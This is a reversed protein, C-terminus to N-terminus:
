KKLIGFRSFPTIRFVAKGEIKEEKILGIRIDRSDSSEKRNDGMVFYYGEPIVLYGYLNELSFDGTICEKVYDDVIEDNIYLNCNEYKIKEGPMGIIRKIVKTNAADAVIIDFRKFNRDYKELMLIESDKLYPYMSSGTVRVPTIIFFRILFVVCIIVVYPVLSLFFNRVADAATKEETIRLPKNNEETNLEEKKNIKERKSSIEENKKKKSM